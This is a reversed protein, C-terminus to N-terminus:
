QLETIVYVEMERTGPILDLNYRKLERRLQPINEFSDISLLIDAKLKDQMQTEDYVWPIEPVEHNLSWIMESISTRQLWKATGDQSAGATNGTAPLIPQTPKDSLQVLSLSPMFRKEKKATIGMWKLWRTLDQTIFTKSAPQQLFTEKLINQPGSGQVMSSKVENYKKNFGPGAPLTVSYCYTNAAAWETRYKGSKEPFYRGPDKVELVIMKPNTHGVGRGEIAGIAFQIFGRNFFNLTATQNISDMKFGQRGGEVGAFHATFASQYVFQPPTIGGHSFSTLPLDYDFDLVDNKVPWTIAKGAIVAEINGANVYDTGTIAKVIGNKDIWIVHSLLEHPFYQKLKVDNLVVPLSINRTRPRQDLTHLVKEETDYNTVTFIQLDNKFQRQLSDFKPLAMICSACTTGWFDILIVKGKLAAMSTQPSPYRIIKQILFDPVKDGPKLPRIAAEITVARQQPAASQAAGYQWAFVTPFIILLITKFM